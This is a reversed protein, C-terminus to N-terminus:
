VTILEKKEASNDSNSKELRLKIDAIAERYFEQWKKEDKEACGLEIYIVEFLPENTNKNKLVSMLEIKPDFQEPKPTYFYIKGRNEKENAKRNVLWWIDHESLDCSFGLCYVDSLLIIKLWSDQDYEENKPTIPHKDLELAMRHISKSYYYHGLVMGDPKGIEGHIHWLKKDNSMLHSYTHFAYRTEARNTGSTHKQWERRTKENFPLPYADAMELEYTYNTTLIHEIELALLENLFLRQDTAIEINWPIDKKNEGCLYTNAKSRLSSDINDETLLVALLPAPCNVYKLINSLKKEKDNELKSEFQELLRSKMKDTTIDALLDYWSEGGFSLNIGNGVLLCSPTKERM